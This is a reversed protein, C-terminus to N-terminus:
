ALAKEAELFGLLRKKEAVVKDIKPQLDEFTLMNVNLEHEDYMEKLQKIERSAFEKQFETRAMKCEKVAQQLGETFTPGYNKAFAWEGSHAVEWLLSDAGTITVSYLTSAAKAIQTPNKDVTGGAGRKGGTLKQGGTLRKGSSPPKGGAQAELKKLAASRGSGRGGGKAETKAKAAKANAAKAKAAEAKAAEAKAAKDEEEEDGVKEDALGEDEGEEDEDEGEEDGADEDEMDEEFEAEVDMKPQSEEGGFLADVLETRPEPIDPGKIEIDNITFEENFITWSKEFENSVTDVFELFM